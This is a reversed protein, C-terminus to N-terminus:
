LKIGEFTYIYKYKDIFKSEPKTEKSKPVTKTQIIGNM